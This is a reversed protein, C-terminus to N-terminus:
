AVEEDEEEGDVLDLLDDITVGEYDRSSDLDDIELATELESLADWFETQAVQVKALVEEAAKRDIAM